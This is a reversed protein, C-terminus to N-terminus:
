NILSKKNQKPHSLMQSFFDSIIQFAQFSTSKLANLSCWFDSFPTKHLAFVDSILNFDSSECGQTIGICCYTTEGGGRIIMMMGAGNKLHRNGQRTGQRLPPQAAWLLGQRYLLHSEQGGGPETSPRGRWPVAQHLLHRNPSNSPPQWWLSLLLLLLQM